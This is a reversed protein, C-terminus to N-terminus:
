AVASLYMSGLLIRAPEGGHSLRVSPCSAIFPMWAQYANRLWLGAQDSSKFIRRAGIRSFNSFARFGKSSSVVSIRTLMDKSFSRNRKATKRTMSWSIHSPSSESRLFNDKAKLFEYSNQFLTLAIINVAVQTSRYAAGLKGPLVHLACIAPVARVQCRHYIAVHVSCRFTRARLWQNIWGVRSASPLIGDSSMRSIIM